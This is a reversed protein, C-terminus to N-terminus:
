TRRKYDYRWAVIDIDSRWEDCSNPEEILLMVKSM